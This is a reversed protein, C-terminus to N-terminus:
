WRGFCILCMDDDQASGRAYQRLDDLIDEGLQDLDRSAARLHKRIRDIGYMEGTLNLAENVGDTYLAVIEGPELQLECQRYQTDADVGLPWGSEEVAVDVVRGSETSYLPPVHGANVFTVNGTDPTLVALVLTVFHDELLDRSLAVNLDNIADAATPSRLLGYRVDSALKATLMAAPVGHGVVDAVVIGLRGDSM